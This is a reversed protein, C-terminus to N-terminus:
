LVYVELAKDLRLSLAAANATASVIKVHHTNLKIDIVYFNVM